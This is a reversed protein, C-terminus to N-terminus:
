FTLMRQRTREELNASQEKLKESNNEWKLWEAHLTNINVEEPTNLLRALQHTMEAKIYRLQAMREALTAGIVQLALHQRQLETEVKGESATQVIKLQELANQKEEWEVKASGVELAYLAEEDPTSVLNQIAYNIEEKLNKIFAEKHIVERTYIEANKKTVELYARDSVIQLGILLKSQSRDESSNYLLLQKDLQTQLTNRKQKDEEIRKRLVDLEANQRTLETQLGLLAEISYNKLFPKPAPPKAAPQNSITAFNKLHNSIQQIITEAKDRNESSLNEPLTNLDNEFESIRGELEEGEVDFYEWWGSRLNAPEPEIPTEQAFAQFHVALIFLLNLLCRTFM